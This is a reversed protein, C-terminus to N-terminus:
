EDYGKLFEEYSDIKGNEYISIWWDYSIGNSTLKKTKVLIKHLPYENFDITKIFDVLDDFTKREIQQNPDTYTCEIHGEDIFFSSKSLALYQNYYYKLVKDNFDDELQNETWERGYFYNNCVDFEISKYKVHWYDDTYGDDGEKKVPESALVYDKLGIKDEIYSKINNNNNETTCGTILILIVVLLLIFFLFQKNM